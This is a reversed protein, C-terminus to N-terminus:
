SKIVGGACPPRIPDIWSAKQSPAADFSHSERAWEGLAQMHALLRQGRETLQYGTRGELEGKSKEADGSARALVGQDVLNALHRTLEKPSVGSIRRQLEKFRVGPGAFHAAEIVAM